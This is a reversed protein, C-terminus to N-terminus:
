RPETHFSIAMPAIGSLAQHGTNAPHQIIKDLKKELDISSLNTGCKNLHYWQNYMYQTDYISSQFSNLFPLEKELFTIRKMDVDFDGKRLPPFHFFIRSTFNKKISSYLSTIYDKDFGASVIHFNVSPNYHVDKIKTSDNTWCANYLSDRSPTTYVWEKYPDARKLWIKTYVHYFDKFNLRFFSRAAYVPNFLFANRMASKSTRSVTMADNIPFFNSPEYFSHPFDFILIDKEDPKLLKLKNITVFPGSPASYHCGIINYGPFRKSLYEYNYNFTINSAGVLIIKPKNPDNKGYFMLKRDSEPALTYVIAVMAIKILLFCLVFLGLVKLFKNM